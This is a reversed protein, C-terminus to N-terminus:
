AYRWAKPLLDYRRTAKIAATRLDGGFPIETVRWQHAVFDGIAGTLKPSVEVGSDVLKKLTEMAWLLVGLRAAESAEHDLVSTRYMGFTKPHNSAEERVSAIDLRRHLMGNVWATELQSLEAGRFGRPRYDALHKAVDVCTSWAAAAKASSGSPADVLTSVTKAWEGVDM